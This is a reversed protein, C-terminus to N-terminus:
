EARSQEARSQQECRGVCCVIGFPWQWNWRVLCTRKMISEERGDPMSMTLQPFEMLVEAMENGREQFLLCPTTNHHHCPRPGPPNLAFSFIPTLWSATPTFTRTHTHTHVNLLRPKPFMYSCCHCHWSTPVAAAAAPIWLPKTMLLWLLM